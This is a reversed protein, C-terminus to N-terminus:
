PTNEIGNSTVYDEGKKILNIVLEAMYETTEPMDNELWLQLVSITGTVTFRHIYIRLQSNTPRDCNEERIEQALKMMKEMFQASGNKSLLVQFINKNKVVYDLLNKTITQLTEQSSFIEQLVQYIESELQNLLDFPNDYHTYFTSRSINARECLMKVTIKSIHFERLLEIITEKLLLRTLRIRHDEKKM